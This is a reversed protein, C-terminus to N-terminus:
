NEYKVFSMKLYKEPTIYHGPSNYIFQWLQNITWCVAFAGKNARLHSDFAAIKDADIYKGNMPSEKICGVWKSTGRHGICHINGQTHISFEQNEIKSEDALAKIIAKINM